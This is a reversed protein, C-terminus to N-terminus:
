QTLWFVAIINYVFTALYYMYPTNCTYENERVKLWSYQSRILQLLITSSFPANFLCSSSGPSCMRQVPLAHIGNKKFIVSNSHSSGIINCPWFNPSSNEGMRAPVSTVVPTKKPHLALSVKAQRLLNGETHTCKTSLSLVVELQM